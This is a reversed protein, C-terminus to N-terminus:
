KEGQHDTGEPTADPFGLLLGDLLRRLGFCRAFGFPGGLGRGAPRGRHSGLVFELGGQLLLIRADRTVHADATVPPLDERHFDM